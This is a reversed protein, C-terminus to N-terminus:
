KISLFSFDLPFNYLPRSITGTPSPKPLIIKIDNEKVLSLDPKDPMHFKETGPKRRLFSVYYELDSNREELVKGIYFWKQRKTAFAVIVYEGEQCQRSLPKNLDKETLAIYQKDINEGQNEKAWDSDIDDDSEVLKVETDTDTDTDEDNDLVVKRVIKKRKAEQRIKTVNKEQELLLKEPTDTAILSRGAKRRKRDTKRPAAKIPNRFLFPSKFTSTVAFTDLEALNTTINPSKSVRNATVNSLINNQLPPTEPTVPEIIESRSSSDSANACITLEESIINSTTAVNIGMTEDINKLSGLTETDGLQVQSTVPRCMLSPICQGRVACDPCPRDTVSSPLFDDDAYIHRDFPFIGCKAFSNTINKPTMVKQFAIGILEGLDYITVPKGPNRLLWSDIASNYFVKFPGYIGVDLPQLKGSTHPHLTLVHVGANKALDLAEICLHSEHNDMILICPNEKSANTHKIVHKMVEPFITSNMWGTPSVLGLTGPPTNKIMNDKFKKRPFVMVPPLANGSAGIICCTTVLTGREGSTVKGIGKKGKPAIVKQPKHVTTTSTEDLNFIRTGDAFANNRSILNKLNDYFKTVNTRNFATARALSCPEPKKLTVDQRRRFATLWDKGAMKNADWSTPIKLKNIKACQYAIQRCEKATLGYFLLACHTFYEKLSIEQETTFIQNVSYNPELRQNDLSEYTHTKWHYRKLTAFPVGSKESAQRISMGGRIMNLGNRIEEATHNGIKRVASKRRPM